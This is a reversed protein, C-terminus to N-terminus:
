VGFRAAGWRWLRASRVTAPTCEVGLRHRHAHSVQCWLPWAPPWRTKAGAGNLVLATTKVASAAKM